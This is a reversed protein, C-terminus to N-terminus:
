RSRVKAIYNVGSMGEFDADQTWLTARHAVATALLISDALPLKHKLGLQAAQTALPADLDVIEGQQMLAATQIAEAEGRERLVWRFVELISITPVILTSVDEIAGAFHDANPGDVVYEIWGSSDVVNM